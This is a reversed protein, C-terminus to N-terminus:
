CCLIFYFVHIFAYIRLNKSSFAAPFWDTYHLNAYRDSSCCTFGSTQALRAHGLREFFTQLCCLFQGSTLLDFTHVELVILNLFCM